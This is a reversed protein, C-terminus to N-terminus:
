PGPRAAAATDATPTGLLPVTELFEIPPQEYGVEIEFNYVLQGERPAQSTPGMNVQNLWPSAELEDMFVSLAQISGAQGIVRIRPAEGGTVQQVATLWTYNPLARAVEDLIHPWTYRGKDIEQIIQVRRAITDARAMLVATRAVLDAYVASDRVAEDLQLTLEERRGGITSLLYGMGGLGIVAVLVAALIWRDKPLGGFKPLSIAM